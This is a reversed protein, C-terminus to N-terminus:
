EVERDDDMDSAAHASVPKERVEVKSGSRLREAGETVVLDGASVSGPAVAVRDVTEFLVTVGTRVATRGGSEDERVLLVFSGSAGRLVADKSLTLTAGVTGTPVYAVLSGGALLGEEPGDVVGVLSFSRTTRSADPVIRLRDLRYREGSADVKVWIQTRAEDDLALEPQILGTLANVAPLLGQPVDLWAEHEKVGLLEIVANGEDVWAGIETLREIVVGDFPARVVADELRDELFAVRTQIREIRRQNRDRGAASLAAQYRADRLEKDTAAGRASAEILVESERTWYATQVLSEDLAAQAEALESEVEDLALRLRTDDIRLVVDGREIRDGERVALEAVIGAEEVAVEARRVARLEGTVMRRQLIVEERATDAYVPTGPGGGGGRQAAAASSLLGLMLLGLVLRLMPYAWPSGIKAAGVLQSMM